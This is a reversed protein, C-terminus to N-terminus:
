RMRDHRDPRRELNIMFIKDFGLHSKQPLPQLFPQLDPAVQVPLHHHPCPHDHLYHHHPLCLCYLLCLCHLLCLRHHHVQIVTGKVTAELLTNVLNPLDAALEQVTIVTVITIIFVSGKITITIIIVIIIIIMIVIIIIIIITRIIGNIIVITITVVVIFVNMKIGTRGGSAANHGWLAQDLKTSSTHM